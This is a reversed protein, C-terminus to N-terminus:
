GIREVIFIILADEFNDVRSAADNPGRVDWWSHLIVSFFRCVKTCGVCVGRHVSVRAIRDSEGFGNGGRSEEDAAFRDSVAAVNYGAERDTEGKFALGDVDEGRALGAGRNLLHQTHLRPLEAVEVGPDIASARIELIPAYGITM